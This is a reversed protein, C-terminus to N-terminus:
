LARKPTPTKPLSEASADADPAHCESAPAEKKSKWGLGKRSRPRGTKASHIEAQAWEEETITDVWNAPRERCLTGDCVCQRYELTVKEFRSLGVFPLRDWVGDVKLADHYAKSHDQLQAM